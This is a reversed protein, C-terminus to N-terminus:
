TLTFEIFKKKLEQYEDEDLQGVIKEGYREQIYLPISREAVRGNAIILTTDVATIL